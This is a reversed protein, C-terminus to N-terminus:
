TKRRKDNQEGICRECTEMLVAVAENLHAYRQDQSQGSLYRRLKQQEIAARRFLGFCRYFTFDGISAGTKAEYRAIADARTPMGPATSGMGRLARLRADDESEIWFSLTCAFDMLPDGVTAMEWDLVGVLEDPQTRSWVLNDMKFDNHVVSAVGHRVPLHSRLWHAIAGADPSAGTRAAEYRKIWGEVQRAAYGEPRGFAGLGIKSVNVKHLLALADVLRHLRARMLPSGDADAERSIEGELREIVVFAGGMVTADECLWLPRPALGFHPHVHTLLKYERAMDHAAAAKHGPPERKVVVDRGGRVLYTLNSNGGTFRFWELQNGLGAIHANLYAGARAADFDLAIENVLDSAPM